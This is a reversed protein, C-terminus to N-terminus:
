QASGSLGSIMTEFSDLMQPADATYLLRLKDRALKFLAAPNPGEASSAAATSSAGGLRAAAMLLGTLARPSGHPSLEVAQAFYALAIDLKEPTGVTYMVEAYLLHHIYNYPELLILEEYCFAARGYNGNELALEALEAWAEADTMYTELYTALTNAAATLDGAGKHAAVLRKYAMPSNPKAEIIERYMEVAVQVDGEAEHKMAILIRVRDSDRFKKALRRICQSALVMENTQLAAVAVQELVDWQDNAASSLTPLVVRAMAVTDAPLALEHRRIHALAAMCNAASPTARAVAVPSPVPSVSM